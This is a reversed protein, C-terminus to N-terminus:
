ASRALTEKALPSINGNASHRRITNYYAEIYQFISQMAQDRTKYRQRHVREVKLTHFFSEMAANDYCNGKGSMSCILQNDKLLQQYRGSCYQSGRDSHVIVGRPFGRRWLAMTLADCVLAQNIRKGMSWGVITRSFLDMVTALYLWGEATWVYTIDSVWKQNRADAEFAQNLLNDAVSFAHNADTTVKFKKAAVAQIQLHRMRRAVRHKGCREGQDRLEDTIRPSGYCGRHREFVEIIKRDLAENAKTRRSQPRQRWAHFGGPSVKLLGCMTTIPFRAAHDRIFAFRM